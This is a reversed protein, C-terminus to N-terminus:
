WPENKLGTIYGVINAARHVAPTILIIMATEKLGFPGALMFAGLIFDLQDLVPAPAGRPLGARRKAFSGVIDGFLAGLSILFPDYSLGFLSFVAYGAITGATVGLFLGEWTKGDGLVRKGDLWHLGFDVPHRRPFFKSLTAAANAVYAPVAWLLFSLSM